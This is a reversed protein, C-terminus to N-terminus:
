EEDVPELFHAFTLPEDPESRRPIPLDPATVAGAAIDVQGVSHNGIEVTLESDKFTLNTLRKTVVLDALLEIFDLRDSNSM